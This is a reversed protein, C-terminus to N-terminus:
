SNTKTKNLHNAIEPYRDDNGGVLGHDPTGKGGGPGQSDLNGPKVPVTLRESKRFNTERVETAETRSVVIADEQNSGEVRTVRSTSARHGNMATVVRRNTRPFM